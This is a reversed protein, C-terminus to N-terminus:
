GIESLLRTRFSAMWEAREAAIARGTATQMTEVLPGPHTVFVDGTGSFTLTYEAGLERKWAQRAPSPDGSIM